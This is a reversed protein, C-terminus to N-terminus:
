SDELGVRCLSILYPLPKGLDTMSATENSPQFTPRCFFASPHLSHMAPSTLPANTVGYALYEPVYDCEIRM